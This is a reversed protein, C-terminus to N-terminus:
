EAQLETTDPKWPRELYEDSQMEFLRSQTRHSEFSEETQVESAPRVFLQEAPAAAHVVIKTGVRYATDIFKTFRRSANRDAIVDLVPINAICITHFTNCLAIYDASSLPRSCLEEFTFFALRKCIVAMPVVLKRGLVDIREERVPFGEGLEDFVDQLQSAGDEDETFYVARASKANRLRYDRTEEMVHVECHQRLLPILPTFLERQLGNEYLREPVRNSTAVLVVGLGFLQRFLHHVVLADSIDTVQFEDLSLYRVEEAIDRAVDGIKDVPNTRRKVHLRAHIDLVFNHFHDRRKLDGDISDYLLDTLMTKGSGVGGCIYAGGPSHTGFLMRFSRDLRMVMPSRKKVYPQLRQHVRSLLAAAARQSPDDAIRGDQVLAEYSRQFRNKSNCHAAESEVATNLPTAVESASVGASSSGTNCLRRSVRVLAPRLSM